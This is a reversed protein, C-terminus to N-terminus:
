ATSPTSSTSTPPTRSIRTCSWVWCAAFKVETPSTLGGFVITEQFGPPLTAATLPGSVSLLCAFTLLSETPRM